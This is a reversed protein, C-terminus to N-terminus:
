ADTEMITRHRRLTTQVGDRDAPPPDPAQLEVILTNRNTILEAGMPDVPSAHATERVPM